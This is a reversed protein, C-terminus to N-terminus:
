WLGKAFDQWQRQRPSLPVSGGGLQATAREAADAPIPLGPCGGRAPDESEFPAQWYALLEDVPLGGIVYGTCNYTYFPWFPIRKVTCPVGAEPGMVAVYFGRLWCPDTTNVSASCNAFAEPAAARVANFFSATHCTSNVVKDVSRVRWTCNSSSFPHTSCDGYSLPSYWLGPHEDSLLKEGSRQAWCDYETFCPKTYNGGMGWKQDLVQRGVTSNCPVPSFSHPQHHTPNCYCCYEGPTCPRGFPDTGNESGINCMAYGSYHSDVDLTVQNIVDSPDTVELNKCEFPKREEPVTPDSCALPVTLVEFMEFFLDGLADAADTNRPVPGFREPNVHYMTVTADLRASHGFTLTALLLVRMLSLM